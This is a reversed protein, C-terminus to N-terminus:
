DRIKCETVLVGARPNKRYVSDDGAKFAEFGKLVEIKGQESLICDSKLQVAYTLTSSQFQSFQRYYCRGNKEAIILLQVTAAVSSYPLKFSCNIPTCNKIHEDFKKCTGLDVEKALSTTTIFLMLVSVFFQKM